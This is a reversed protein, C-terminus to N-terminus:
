QKVGRKLTQQVEQVELDEQRHQNSDADPGKGGHRGLSQPHRQDIRNEQRHNDPPLRNGADSQEDPRAGDAGNARSIKRNEETNRPASAGM